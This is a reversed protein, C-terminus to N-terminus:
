WSMKGFVGHIGFYLLVLGTVVSVIHPLLVHPFFWALKYSRRPGVIEVPRYKPESKQSYLVGAYSWSSDIRPSSRDGTNEESASKHRLVEIERMRFYFRMQHRKITGEILWFGIGSLAAVLFLGYHSYQFGGALAALSLTVGWGKVTMLRKDFENVTHFIEYYERLLDEENM